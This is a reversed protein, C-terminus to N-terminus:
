GGYAPVRSAAALPIMGGTGRAAQRVELAIRAARTEQSRVASAAYRETRTDTATAVTVDVSGDSASLAVVERVEKGTATEVAAVKGRGDDRVRLTSVLREGEYREIVAVTASGDRSLTLVTRGNGDAYVKTVKAEAVPNEGTWFEIVNFLVLDLIGTLAYPIVFVWTAASRVYKEDISQNIDYLKRTLQFKGFCGASLAGVAAVLVLAIGKGFRNGRMAM